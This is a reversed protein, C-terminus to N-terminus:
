VNNEFFSIVHDYLEQKCNYALIFDLHAYNPKYLYQFGQGGLDIKLREVDLENALADKEGAALFLKQKPVKSLDYEPPDKSGYKIFNQLLGYDYKQFKNARYIQALHALNKTSTTQTEYKEYFARRSNNICCNIGTFTDTLGEFCRTNAAACIMDVYQKGTKTKTSFSHLGLDQFVKDLHLVAAAVGIPTYAHSVYAVPALLAVKEVKDGISGESFAALAAQTGQSFGIFHMNRKTINNVLYVMTPLDIAALEDVSWDWYAKDNETLYEHGYSFSTTRANGIWVDYGADALIFAPSEGPPNLIWSDGGSLVGHNLLVPGKSFSPINLRQVGLKFGDSTGISYEHCNYKSYPQVFISCLGGQYKESRIVGNISSLGSVIWTHWCFTSVLLAFVHVKKCVEM